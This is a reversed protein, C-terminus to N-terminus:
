PHGHKKYCLTTHHSSGKYPDMPDACYECRAADHCEFTAHDQASCKRCRGETVFLAERADITMPCNRWPHDADKCLFCIPCNRLTPHVTTYPPSLHNTSPRDLCPRQALTSTSSSSAAPLVSHEEFDSTDSSRHNTLSSVQAHLVSAVTRTSSEALTRSLVYAYFQKFKVYGGTSHWTAVDSGFDLDFRRVRHECYKLIHATVCRLLSNWLLGAIQDQPFELMDLRVGANSLVNMYDMIDSADTSKPAAENILRIQRAVDHGKKCFIQFLQAWLDLYRQRTEGGFYGIVANKAKGDLCRFVAEIKMKYSMQDVPARHVLDLCSFLEKLSEDDKEGTFPQFPTIM